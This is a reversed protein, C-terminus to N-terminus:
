KTVLPYCVVRFGIGRYTYDPDKDRRCASRCFGVDGAFAGGRFVRSDGSTPGIPNEPVALKKRNEISLGDM